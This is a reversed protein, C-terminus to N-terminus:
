TRRPRRTKLAGSTKHPCRTFKVDVTAHQQKKSMFMLNQTSKFKQTTTTDYQHPTQSQNTTRSHRTTHPCLTAHPRGAKLPFGTDNPLRM